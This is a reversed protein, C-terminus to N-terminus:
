FKEGKFLVCKGLHVRYCSEQSLTWRYTLHTRLQYSPCYLILQFGQHCKRSSISPFLSSSGSILHSCNLCHPCYPSLLEPGTHIQSFSQSCLSVLTSGDLFHCSDLPPRSRKHARILLYQSLSGVGISLVLAMLDLPMKKM